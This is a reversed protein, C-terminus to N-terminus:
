LLSELPRGSRTQSPSSSHHQTSVLGNITTWPPRPISYSHLYSVDNIRRNERRNEIMQPLTETQPLAQFALLFLLKRSVRWKIPVNTSNDKENQHLIFYDESVTTTFQDYISQMYDRLREKMKNQKTEWDEPHKEEKRSTVCQRKREISWNGSSDVAEHMGGVQMGKPPPTEIMSGDTDICRNLTDDNADSLALYTLINDNMHRTADYCAFTGEQM